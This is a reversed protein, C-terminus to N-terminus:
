KTSIFNQVFSFDSLHFGVEAFFGWFKQFFSTLLGDNM